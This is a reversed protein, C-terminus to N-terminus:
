KNSSRRGKMVVAVGLKLKRKEKKKGGDDEGHHVVTREAQKEGERNRGNKDVWDTSQDHYRGSLLHFTLRCLTRLAAM